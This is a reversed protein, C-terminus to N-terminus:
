KEEEVMKEMTSEWCPFNLCPNYDEGEEKSYMEHHKVEVLLYLYYKDYITKDVCLGNGFGM